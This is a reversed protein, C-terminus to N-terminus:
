REMDSVELIGPLWTTVTESDATHSTNFAFSLCCMNKM